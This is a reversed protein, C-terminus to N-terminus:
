PRTREARLQSRRVKGAENHLSGSVREFSAPRKYPALRDRLFAHLSDLDADATLQVLAHPLSGLEDDPLGIVCADVVCPHELLASEIEAPYVNIGGVTFMDADRDALYLYGDGDFHGLDGLTEWGADDSRPEAGVYRYTPPTGDPRRMWIRGVEGTPLPNGGDDRIQMEGSVVRGVSGRHALWEKGDITTTAQGETGAYLVWVVEPGLWDLFSEKLAPACAAAMHMWVRVSSVDHRDREEPPLKWIRAMMTPVAYVWTVEHAAILRLAETPDFRPMLVAHCGRLVALSAVCFPANHSMPATVLVSGATPMQLVDGLVIDEVAARQGAVIVKPRGTSGGSTPAKWAPSVVDPLSGVPPHPLPLTVVPRDGPPTTGRECLVVAPDTLELIERLEREALKPSLVQPVAGALWAGFAAVIAEVSNHMVISVYSGPAVGLARLEVALGYAQHFLEGRSLTIGGCTVAAHQPDQVALARLAAGFSTGAHPPVAPAFDPLRTERGSLDLVSM